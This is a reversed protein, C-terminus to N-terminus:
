KRIVAHWAYGRGIVEFELSANAARARADLVERLDARPSVHFRELWGRLIQRFWRPLREQQGFDVVHLSGNPALAAIAADIAKEWEPIMSLAYSILIRDFGAEGFESPTFGTADAVRFVPQN